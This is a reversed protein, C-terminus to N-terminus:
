MDFLEVFLFIKGHRLNTTNAGILEIVNVHKGICSLLKIESLMDNLTTKHIKKELNVTKVAVNLPGEDGKIKGVCVRGFEMRVEPM